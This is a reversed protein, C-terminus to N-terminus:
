IKDSLFKNTQCFQFSVFIFARPAELGKIQCNNQTTDIQECKYKFTKSLVSRYTLLYKYLWLTYFIGPIKNSRGVCNGFHSFINTRKTLRKEFNYLIIFNLTSFCCGSMNKYHHVYSVVNLLQYLPEVTINLM